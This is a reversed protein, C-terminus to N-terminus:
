LSVRAKFHPVTHLVIMEHPSVVLDDRPHPGSWVVNREVIHHLDAGRDEARRPATPRAVHHELHRPRAVGPHVNLPTAVPPCLGVLNALHEFCDVLLGFSSLVISSRLSGPLYSYETHHDSSSPSNTAVQTSNGESDQSSSSRSAASRPMTESTLPTTSSRPLDPSGMGSGSETRVYLAINRSREAARSCAFSTRSAVSCPTDSFASALM